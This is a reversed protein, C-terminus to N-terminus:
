PQGWANFRVRTDGAIMNRVTAGAWQLGVHGLTHGMGVSASKGGDIVGVITNLFAKPVSEEPAVIVPLKTTDDIMVDFAFSKGFLGPNSQPM